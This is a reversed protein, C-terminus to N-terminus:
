ALEVCDVTTTSYQDVPDLDSRNLSQLLPPPMIALQATRILGQIAIRFWTRDNVPPNDPDYYCGINMSLRIVKPFAVGAVGVFAQEIFMQVNPTTKFPQTIFRSIANGVWRIGKATEFQFNWAQKDAPNFLWYVIDTNLDIFLNFVGGGKIESVTTEFKLSFAPRGWTTHVDYFAGKKMEPTVKWDMEDPPDPKEIIFDRIPVTDHAGLPYTETVDAIDGFNQGELADSQGELEWTRGQGM